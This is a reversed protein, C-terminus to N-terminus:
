VEDFVREVIKTRHNLNGWSEVREEVFIEPTGDKRKHPYSVRWTTVGEERFTCHTEWKDTHTLYITSFGLEAWKNLAEKEPVYDKPVGFVELSCDYDDWGLKTFDLNPSSNYLFDEIQGEINGMEFLKDSLTM